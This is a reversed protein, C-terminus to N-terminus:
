YPRWYGPPSLIIKSLDAKLILAGLYVLFRYIDTALLSSFLLFAFGMWTYGIYALIRALLEFGLRQSFRIIIPSFIMIVMFVILFSDIGSGLSLARRARLFIYLHLGGYLSLFVLLFIILGALKYRRGGSGVEM